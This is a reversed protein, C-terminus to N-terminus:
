SSFFPSWHHGWLHPVGIGVLTTLINPSCGAPNPSLFRALLFDPPSPASSPGRDGWAGVGMRRRPPSPRGAAVTRNSEPSQNPEVLPTCQTPPSPLLCTLPTHERARVRWRLGATGYSGSTRTARRNSAGANQVTGQSNISTYPPKAFAGLSTHAMQTGNSGRGISLPHAVASSTRHPLSPGPHLM